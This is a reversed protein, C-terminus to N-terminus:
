FGQTSTSTPHCERNHDSFATGQSANGALRAVLEHYREIVKGDFVRDRSLLKWDHAFDVKVTLHTMLDAYLRDRNKLPTISKFKTFEFSDLGYFDLMFTKIGCLVAWILTSSNVAVFVDAAPLIKKLPEASLQVGFEHELFRYRDFEVRPHLSVLIARGTRALQALIYRIESWHNDWSLVGQEAFQPLAIVVIGKGAALKYRDVIYQRSSARSATGQHLSDFEPAGVIRLKGAPVGEALYREATMASDVCVVDSLGCGITWPNSSLAGLKKLAFLVHPEQFFYGERAMSSLRFNAFLRYISFPTWRKPEGFLRRSWLLGRYSSFAVCPLLVRINCQRAVVLAPLELDLHRDGWALVLDPRLLDFLRHTDRIQAAYHREVRKERLLCALSNYEITNLVLSALKSKGKVKKRLQLYVGLFGQVIKLLVARLGTLALSGEVEGTRGAHQRLTFVRTTPDRVATQLRAASESECLVALRMGADGRVIDEALRLVNDAHHSANHVVLILM